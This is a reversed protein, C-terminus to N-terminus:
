DFAERCCENRRKREVFFCFAVFREGLGCLLIRKVYRVPLEFFADDKRIQDRVEKMKGWYEEGSNNKYLKRMTAWWVRVVYLLLSKRFGTELNVSKYTSLLWSVFLIESDVDRLNHTLSGKRQRYLYTIERSVVGKKIKQLARLVFEQDECVRLDRRFRMGSVVASSFCRHGLLNSTAEPLKKKLCPDGAFHALAEIQSIVYSGKEKGELPLEQDRFWRWFGTVVYDADYRKMLSVYTELFNSRVVDDSDFFCILGVGCIEDIYDLAKNRAASVGENRGEMVVVREDREAFRKLLKLSNDTSGDDVAILIFNRYTQRLISEVAESLYVETNYVPMVVAVKM